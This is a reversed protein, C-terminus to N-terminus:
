AIHRTTTREECDQDEAGTTERADAINIMNVYHINCYAVRSITVSIHRDNLM